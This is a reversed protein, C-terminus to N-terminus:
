AGTDLGLATRLTRLEHSLRLATEVMTELSSRMEAPDGSLLAAEGHNVLAALCNNAQHLATRVPDGARNKPTSVNM